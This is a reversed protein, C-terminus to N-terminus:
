RFYRAGLYDLLVPDVQEGAAAAQLAALRAQYAAGAAPDACGPGLLVVDGAFYCVELGRRDAIWRLLGYYQRPQVGYRHDNLDVLVWDVRDAVALIRPDHLLYLGQRNALHPAYAETTAVAGDGPLRAAAARFAAPDVVRTLSYNEWDVQGTRPQWFQDLGLALLACVALWLLTLTFRSAHFTFRSAAVREMGYVAAAFVVPITLAAYHFYISAQYLNGALWNIALSPLAILAAPSLLSLFGVPLLLKVLMWLRRPEGLLHGAIRGPNRLAGALIDAPGSGLWAYRALTDSEAGRFHPILVFLALLSWALGAGAWLLGVAQLGRDRDVETQEPRDGSRARRGRWWAWLGFAAVTLGVDEKTLLALGLALSMAGLRRAELAWFALLLLPIAFVEEHFEFRNVFGLAPYSLYIAALLLAALHAGQPWHPLLRRRALLALPWAGVALAGSQLLLLLRADPWLRYLPALPLIIPSIHDGLYNDVEVSGAFLRGHGTNWWVQAHLGLDYAKSNFANHRAISYSALVAAAVVIAAALLLQWRRGGQLWRDLRLLWPTLREGVALIQRPWLAVAVLLAGLLGATVRAEALLSANYTATLTSAPLAGAVWGRPTLLLAAAALLALGAAGLLWRWITM